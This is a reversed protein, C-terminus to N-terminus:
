QSPLGLHRRGTGPVGGGGARPLGSAAWGARIPGFGRRHAPRARGGVRPRHSTRGPRRPQTPEGPPAAGPSPEVPACLGLRAPGLPARQGASSEPAVHGVEQLIRLVTQRIQAQATPSLPAWIQQPTMTLAPAPTRTTSLSAELPAVLLPVQRPT